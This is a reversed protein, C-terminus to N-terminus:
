WMRHPPVAVNTPPAAGSPARYRGRYYGGPQYQALYAAGTPAVVATPAGAVPVQNMPPAPKHYVPQGPQGSIYAKGDNHHQKANAENIAQVRREIAFRDERNLQMKEAVAAVAAAASIPVENEKEFVTALPPPPPVSRHKASKKEEVKVEKEQESVIWSHPSNPRADPYCPKPLAVNLKKMNQPVKITDMVSPFNPRELEAHNDIGDLHLKAIIDPSQLLEFATPRERPNLRLLHRIVRHLGDSYKRPPPAYRGAVVARKLEPFSNGLFPPRLSCLEYIMCGLSWMDSSSDYPRNAWIEPSMYYPTGIQTQLQGKKLRKSVNMDGIKVSGDEAVFTNATQM